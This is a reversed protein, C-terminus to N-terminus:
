DGRGSLGPEPATAVVVGLRRLPNLENVGMRDAYAVAAPLYAGREVATVVTGAVVWYAVLVEAVAAEAVWAAVAAPDGCLEATVAAVM